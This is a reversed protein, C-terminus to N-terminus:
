ADDSAEKLAGGVESAQQTGPSEGGAEVADEAVADPESGEDPGDLREPEHVSLDDRSVARGEDDVIEVHEVLWALAKAKRQESRVAATRGARDLRERLQAPSVDMQKAMQALEEALEEDTVELQEAEGLARLALDVKTAARADTRLQALMEEASRGTAALFQEITIGQRELRHNLDHLRERLEEEVLTDPVVEDDVLDALAHVANERLALQARSAKLPALRGRLDDRLEAVTQFESSEAAWQDTPEPLRKEKVDKVLIRYSVESGNEPTASFQLIDGVRAGRLQDDLEPLITGRGVEYLYDDVGVVESGAADTGHVDITVADKDRAPRGVAVLEGDNERLRDVQADVDADTVLPSPVTVKLGAYGPIAVLPRVEVLADFSVPGSEEGATIDIEPPAIPDVESDAVARAYFDPLAERLAEARLAAAGGMRAELVRRPVKGPRFGPVRAQRSLTRVVEDLARDIEPEDLDVSLRVKNGEVSEVATRM